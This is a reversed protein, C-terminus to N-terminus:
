SGEARPRARDPGGRAGALDGSSPRDLAVDALVGYHDSPWRVAGAGSPERLVVRSRVVRGPVDRGPALFVYDIRESVTARGAGVDQGHTFGPATPNAQRFADVLGAGRTLWRIAPSTDPANFDGMLVSPLPGATARVVAAVAGAQCADGSTHASLAVLRGAPTELEALLLVRVDFPRGCRPLEYARWREIPFRSLLAPGEAFGLASAVVRRAHESGFPRTAAPAHVHRYGLRAALRAAVNGRRRGTSAEQLAVVDADLARLGGSAIRLREDLAEDDGSLESFIGGHLLNFTVFRLTLPKPDPTFGEGGRGWVGLVGLAVGLAAVLRGTRGARDEM